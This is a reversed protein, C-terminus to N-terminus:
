YRERRRTPDDYYERERVVDTGRTRNTLVLGYVIALVLALIGILLLITGTAEIDLFWIEGETIAYKLIAGVTILVISTGIGIPAVPTM